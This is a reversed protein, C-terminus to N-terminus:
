PNILLRLFIKLIPFAHPFQEFLWELLPFDYIKFKPMTVELEGPPGEDDYIDKATARITYTGRTTWTYNMKVKEGSEYPGVWDCGSCSPKWEIWFYVDHGDPDIASFTYEYEEGVNGYTPGTIKPAEPPQNATVTISLVPLILLICLNLCIIKKRM